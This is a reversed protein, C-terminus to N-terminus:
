TIDLDDSIAKIEELIGRILEMDYGKRYFHACTKQFSTRDDRPFKRIYKRVADTVDSPSQKGEEEFVRDLIDSSIGKLSLEGRIMRYSKRSKRSNLYDRAYEYDNIYGSRIMYDLTEDISRSDNDSQKLKERLQEKTMDRRVLLGMARKKARPLAFELRLAEIEDSSLSMGESLKKKKIEGPYLYIGERGEPNLYIKRGKGPVLRIVFEM